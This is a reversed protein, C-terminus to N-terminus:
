KHPRAVTYRILEDVVYRGDVLELGAAPLLREIDRDFSAGFVGRVWPEWLRTLFRRWPKRPRTYELLRLEGSPKCVRALERLAPLLQEEPIVCFLFSAVVADFTEDAFGTDCVNRQLLHAAAGLRMRRREARALMEPSLDIGTVDAGGPYFPMNRGTGVGADLVRGSLGRFLMRRLPQYRALEFPLELFDYLPAIRRYRGAGDRARVERDNENM